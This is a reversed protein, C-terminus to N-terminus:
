EVLSSYVINKIKRVPNTTGSDTRQMMVIVIINNKVDISVYPGLWGDWGFEGKVSLVNAKEPEKCVRLLNAYSYGNFCELSKQCSKELAEDGLCANQLYDVVSPMIIKKGDFCGKNVLMQAFKMYDDITSCLGAGGSEFSPYLKMNNSIGLNCKEFLSLELNGAQNKVSSYVKALRNQNKESVYFDTNNMGLPNIINEKVFEGFSMGSVSEIVAALVDASLGYCFDTGPEFSLPIESIRKAFDMTSIQNKCERDKNLENILASTKRQGEDSDGGYTIGSTMNLLHQIRLPVKLDETKNNKCVKLNDFFPLYDRVEDSFALKGQQILIMAAACTVPKTMSFLRCLTDRSFRRKNEVDAFGGEFYGAEKGNKYILCNMGACFNNNVAEDIVNQINKLNHITM